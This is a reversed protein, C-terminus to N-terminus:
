KIQNIQHKAKDLLSSIKNLVSEFYPTDCGKESISSSIKYRIVQSNPAKYIIVKIKKSVEQNVMM